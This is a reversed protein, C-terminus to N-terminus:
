DSVWVEKIEGDEVKVVKTPFEIQNLDNYVVGKIALQDVHNYVYGVVERKQLYGDDNLLTQYFVNIWMYGYASYLDPKKNYQALFKNEFESEFELKAQGILYVGKVL